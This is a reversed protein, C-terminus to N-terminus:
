QTSFIHSDCSPSIFDLSGKAKWTRFTVSVIHQCATDTEMAYKSFSVYDAERPVYKDYNADHLWNEHKRRRRVTRGWDYSTDQLPQPTQSYEQTDHFSCFSWNSVVAAAALMCDVRSCTTHVITQTHIALTTDVVWFITILFTLLYGAHTTSSSQM